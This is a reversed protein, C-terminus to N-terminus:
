VSSAGPARRRYPVLSHGRPAVFSIHLSTRFPTQHKDCFVMLPILKPPTRQWSGTEKSKGTLTWEDFHIKCWIPAQWHAPWQQSMNRRNKMRGFISEWHLLTSRTWKLWVCFFFRKSHDAPSQWCAFTSTVLCWVNRLSRGYRPWWVGQSSSKLKNRISICQFAQFLEPFGKCFWGFVKEGKTKSASAKRM